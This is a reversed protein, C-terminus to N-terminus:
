QLTRKTDGLSAHTAKARDIANGLFIRVIKRFQKDNELDHGKALAISEALRGMHDPDLNAFENAYLVELLYQYALLMRPYKASIPRTRKKKAGKRKKTAM